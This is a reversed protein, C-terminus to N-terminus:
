QTPGHSVVRLYSLPDDHGAPKAFQQYNMLYEYLNSDVSLGAGSVTRIRGRQMREDVIEAAAFENLLSPLITVSEQAPAPGTAATAMATPPVQMGSEQDIGLVGFVAIASMSAALAFGITTKSRTHTGPVAAPPSAQPNIYVPEHELVDRVRDTLDTCIYKPLSGRMADGILHYNSWCEQMAADHRLSQTVPKMEWEPLEGDVLMSIKDANRNTM